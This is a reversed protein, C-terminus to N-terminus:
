PAPPLDSWQGVPHNQGRDVFYDNLAAALIDHEAPSARREGAAIAEVEHRQFGGGIGVAAIWLESITWGTCRFGRQLAATSEISSQPDM